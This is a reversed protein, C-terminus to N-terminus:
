RDTDPGPRIVWHEFLENSDKQDPVSPSVICVLFRDQGLRFRGFDASFLSTGVKQGKASTPAVLVSLTTRCGKKATTSRRKLDVLVDRKGGFLWRKAIPM